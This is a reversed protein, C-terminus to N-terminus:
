NIESNLNTLHEKRLPENPVNNSKSKNCFACSWVVNWISHKGGKSIPIYHDLQTEKDNLLMTGCYYCVQKQAKMLSALSEQCITTDSTAEKTLRRRNATHAGSYKGRNTKKYAASAKKLRERNKIYYEKSKISTNLKQEDTLPKRIYTKAYEKNVNKTKEKNKAYHLKRQKRECDKCNSQLGDKAAKRKRFDSDEKIKQCQTCKKM